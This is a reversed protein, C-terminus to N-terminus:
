KENIKLLFIARSKRWFNTKIHEIDQSNISPNKDLKTYADINTYDLYLGNCM